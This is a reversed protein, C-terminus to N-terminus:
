YKIGSNRFVRNCNCNRFHYEDQADRLLIRMNENKFPKMVLYKQTGLMFISELETGTVISIVLSLSYPTGLANKKDRESRFGPRLDGRFVVHYVRRTVWRNYSDCLNFNGM